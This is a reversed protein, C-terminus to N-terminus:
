QDVKDATQEPKIVDRFWTGVPKYGAPIRALVDSATLTHESIPIWDTDNMQFRGNDFRVVHIYRGSENMYRRNLIRNM